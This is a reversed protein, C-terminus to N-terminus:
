NWIFERTLDISRQDASRWASAGTTTSGEDMSRSRPWRRQCVRLREWRRSRRRRAQGKDLLAGGGWGVLGDARSATKQHTGSANRRNRGRRTRGLRGCPSVAGGPFRDAPPIRRRACDKQTGPAHSPSKPMTQPRCKPAHPCPASPPAIQGARHADALRGLHRTDRAGSYAALAAWRQSRFQPHM